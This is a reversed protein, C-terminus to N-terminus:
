LERFLLFQSIYDGFDYPVIEPAMDPNELLDIWSNNAMSMPAPMMQYTILGSIIGFVGGIVASFVLISLLNRGFIKFTNDLIEGVSMPRLFNSNENM